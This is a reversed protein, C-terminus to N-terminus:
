PDRHGDAYGVESVALGAESALRALEAPDGTWFGLETVGAPHGDEEEHLCLAVEHGLLDFCAIHGPRQFVPKLGLVDRYFGASEELEGKGVYITINHFQPHRGEDGMCCSETR